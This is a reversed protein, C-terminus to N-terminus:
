KIELVALKLGESSAIAVCTHHWASGFDTGGAPCAAKLVIEWGKVHSCLSRWCVGSPLLHFPKLQPTTCQYSPLKRLIGM